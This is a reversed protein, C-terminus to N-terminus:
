IATSLDTRGAITYGISLTDANTLRSLLLLAAGLFVGSDQRNPAYEALGIPRSLSKGTPLPGTDQIYPLTTDKPIQKIKIYWYPSPQKQGSSQYAEHCYNIFDYPVAALAEGHYLRSLDALLINVSLGDAVMHHISVSLVHCDESVRRMGFRYLPGESVNMPQMGNVDTPELWHVFPGVAPKIRGTLRGEQVHFVSRLVRHRAVLQEVASEFRHCDVAGTIRYIAQQEYADNKIKQCALYFDLQVDTAPYEEARVPGPDGSPLVDADSGQEQAELLRKILDGQQRITPHKALQAVSIDCGFEKRLETRLYVLLISNGGAEFFSCHAAPLPTKLVAEWVSRVRLQTQDIVEDPMEKEELYRAALERLAQIDKKGHATLPMEKLFIIKRPLMYDLLRGQLRQRMADQSIPRQGGAAVVFAIIHVAGEGAADASIVTECEKIGPIERLAQTIENLELRRGNIKVQQDKRGIYCIGQDLTWYCEDGTAYGRDSLSDICQFKEQTLQVDNVYGDALATGFIYLQGPLFPPQVRDLVDLVFLRVNDIPYGIPVFNIEQASCLHYSVDVAAETPGYLNLLRKKPFVRAFDNALSVPLAEGSVFVYRVSPIRKWTDQSHFYLFARLMSPVFHIISVGYREIATLIRDLNSEQGSDLVATRCGAVSWLFMEIISVDFTVPTKFLITDAPTIEAYRRIWFLRNAIAKHTVAVGKPKGTSGSTYIIYAADTEEPLVLSAPAATQAKEMLDACSVTQTGYDPENGQASDCILLRAKADKLQERVRDVPAHIDVPMYVAGAFIIGFIIHIMEISRHMRVAIVPQEGGCLDRLATVIKKQVYLAEGFTCIMDEQQLAVDLPVQVANKVYSSLFEGPVDPFQTRNMELLVAQEQPLLLNLGCLSKGPDETIQRLLSRYRQALTEVIYASRGHEHYLITARVGDGELLEVRLELPYPNQESFRVNQIKDAIYGNVPYNEVTVISTYLQDTGAVGIISKVANQGINDYQAVSQFRAYAERICSVVTQRGDGQFRFPLINVYNGIVRDGAHDARGSVTAGFLVDSANGLSQCLIGWAGYFLASIPLKMRSFQRLKGEGEQRGQLVYPPPGAMHKSVGSGKTYFTIFDDLFIGLSWGDMLVHSYQLRFVMGAGTPRVAVFWPRTELEPELVAETDGDTCLILPVPMHKLIVQVPKSMDRYRIVSRLAPHRAQMSALVDHVRAGDYPMDLFFEVSEQYMGEYLLIEYLINEQSRNLPLIDEVNSKDLIM